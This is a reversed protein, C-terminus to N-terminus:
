LKKGQMSFRTDPLMHQASLGLHCTWLAHWFQPGDIGM